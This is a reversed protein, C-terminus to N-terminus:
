HLGLMSRTMYHSPIQRGGNTSVGNRRSNRMPPLYFRLMGNDLRNPSYRASRNRELVFDDRRNKYYHSGFKSSNKKTGGYGANGSFSHRSSISSNSRLMRNNFSSSRLEPWSESLSREVINAEGRSSSRRQILGWINWAKSWRRSKKASAGRQDKFASEFSGLYDDRLSNSSWDKVDRDLLTTPNCQFFDMGGAPSLKGNPVPKSETPEVPQERISASRDLSHRRRSSSDLYYDRTQLSGGPVTTDEEVPILFDSRPVAQTPADEVVSLIPPLRPFVSRGGILYGDWSARPEDWSFRPDEFSMRGADLSFRPDTDCSRRGSADVAVESQTDRFRRSATPAKEARMAGDGGQKKLKQKRRWKQLKKSFVSAALWFSSAIEKFDKAPLKKAQHQQQQSDLDIHDKMPKVETTREEIEAEEKREENIEGSSEVVLVVPDVPTIEDDNENEEERTESFPPAVCPGPIGLNRCEVESAIVGSAVAVVSVPHSVSSPAVSTNEAVRQHDDQNFLSWLTSRGRVDCSRRQPEFAVAPPRQISLGEGGGGRAFSFSKSRRLFSPGAAPAAGSSVKQFVSRLASTSKRGSSAAPAELGSLRERLCSACFGTVTEGPHLDCTSSPLRRQPQLLQHHHLVEREIEATM